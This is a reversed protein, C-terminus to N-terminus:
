QSATTVRSVGQASLLRVHGITDGDFTLTGAQGIGVPPQM